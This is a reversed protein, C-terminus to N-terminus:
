HSLVQAGLAELDLLVLLAAADELRALGALLPQEVRGAPMAHLQSASLRRVESVADVVLGLAQGNLRIVITVTETSFPTPLGLLQRLDVIPLVEGRLEMVGLVHAAAQALRTPAVFGRIEQVALIDIGYEQRDLRFSLVERADPVPDSRLTVPLCGALTAPASPTILPNMM